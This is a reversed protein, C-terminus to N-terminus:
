PRYQFLIEADHEVHHARFMRYRSQFAARELVFVLTERLDLARLAHFDQRVVHLLREGTQRQVDGVAAILDINEPIEM